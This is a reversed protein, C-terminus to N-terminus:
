SYIKEEDKIKMSTFIVSLIVFVAVQILGFAIDFLANILPMIPIAAWSLLYKILISICTGSIVNGFLRLCLSIPLTLESMLNMPLMVPTPDCFSKLYGGIGNSAIGTAQIIVFTCFALAFTVIVYSTPNNLLYVASINAMFIFITLTLFWPSYARWRKGINAKIYGNMMDVLWMFPILWKPTPKFPDVRRIFFYLMFFLLILGGCIYITAAIPSTPYFTYGKVETLYM